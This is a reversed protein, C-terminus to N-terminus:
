VEYVMINKALNYDLAFCCGRVVVILVQNRKHKRLVIVREGKVFGLEILRCKLRNDFDEIKVVVTKKNIKLDCLSIINNM